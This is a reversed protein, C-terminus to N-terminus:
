SCYHMCMLKLLLERKCPQINLPNTNMVEMFAAETEAEYEECTFPIDMM